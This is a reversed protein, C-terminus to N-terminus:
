RNESIYTQVRSQIVQATEAATKQGAFYPACDELIIQMVKKDYDLRSQASDVLERFLAAEEPKAAFIEIQTGDEYGIGVKSQEVKNGNEDTYYSAEMAEAIMEEYKKQLVPIGFLHRYSDQTLTGSLFQWAAQPHACKATIALCSSIFNIVARHSNEGPLGVFVYDEGLEAIQEQLSSVEYLNVAQVLAQKNKLQAAARPLSEYEITEPALAAIELLSVFAESDFNCQGTAPDIFADLGLMSLLMLTSERSNHAIPYTIQPNERLVQVFAENTWGTREGLVSKLGMMTMMEFSRSLFYLKGDNEMAKLASPVFDERSLTEDADLLPYLDAFLGKAALADIPIHSVDILDPVNGATLDANFRELASDWDGSENVYCVMDIRYQDNKRNFEIIQESLMSDEYLTALTLVTKNEEYLQKQLMALESNGNMDRCSLLFTGNGAPFLCQINDASLDMKLFELLEESQGDASIRYLKGNAVAYLWGAADGSVLEFYGSVQSFPIAKGFAKQQMDIPAIQMGESDHYVAAITGDACLALDQFWNEASIKFMLSGAADLVFIDRDCMLAIRGQPDCVIKQIYFYEQSGALEHLPALSTITGDFALRILTYTNNQAQMDYANLIAIMGDPAPTIQGIYSDADLVIAARQFDTGDPLFSALYSVSTQTEEDYESDTYYIRGDVYQAEYLYRVQEPLTLYTPRYVEQPEAKRADAPAACATLLLCLILTLCILKKM